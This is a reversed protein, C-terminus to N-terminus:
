KRYKLKNLALRLLSILFNRTEPILLLVIGYGICCLLISILEWVIGAFLGKTACAIVVIVASGVFAPLMNKLMSFPSLSFYVKALVVNIVGYLMRVICCGFIFVTFGRQATYFLIPIMEAMQLTQSLVALKPRGKSTFIISVYQGTLITLAHALSYLGIFLEADKWQPGFLISTLFDRYM